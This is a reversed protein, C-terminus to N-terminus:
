RKLEEKCEMFEIRMQDFDEKLESYRANQDKVWENYSNQMSTLADVKKARRGGFFAIVSAFAGSIIEWNEIFFNGKM